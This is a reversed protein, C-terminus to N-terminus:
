EERVNLLNLLREADDPPYGSFYKSFYGFIEVSSESFKKIKEAWDNIELTKDVEVRGLNGRVVTRDGEWRIYVFEATLENGRTGSFRDSLTLAVNHERLLSSLKETPWRNNRLEVAFRREKPLMHLFDRLPQFHEPGFNPPFQLLLLGLKEELSSIVDLFRQTEAECNRLMKIHTIVRPFKSSFLFGAPTQKKWETVAKEAPIRYFTSDLEVTSFRKSYEKLFDSPSADESYLSGVWFSYSWGMTGIHVKDARVRLGKNEASDM